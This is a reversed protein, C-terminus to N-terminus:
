TTTHDTVDATHNTLLAGNTYGTYTLGEPLALNFQYACYTNDSGTLVIDFSGSYGPVVNRINAISLSGNAARVNTLGALLLAFLLLKRKMIM